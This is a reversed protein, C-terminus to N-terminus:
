IGTAVGVLLTLCFHWSAPMVLHSHHLIGFHHRSYSDEVLNFNCLPEQAKAVEGSVIQLPNAIFHLLGKGL